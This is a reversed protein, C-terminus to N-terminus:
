ESKKETEKMKCTNVGCLIYLACSGTLATFILILGVAGWWSEYYFGVAIIALGIILRLIKDISGVNKKM